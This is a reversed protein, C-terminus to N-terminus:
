TPFNLDPLGYIARNLIGILYEAGFWPDCLLGAAVMLALKTLAAKVEAIQM